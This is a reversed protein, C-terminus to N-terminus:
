AAMARWRRGGKVTLVAHLRQGAPVENGTADVFTFEGEQLELVAADGPSGVRLSGLEPKGIAASTSVAKRRCGPTASTPTM